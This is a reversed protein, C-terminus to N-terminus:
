CTPMATLATISPYKVRRRVSYSMDAIASMNHGKRQTIGIEQVSWDEGLNQLISQFKKTRLVGAFASVSDCGMFAHLGSHAKCADEGIANSIKELDIYRELHQLVDRTFHSQSQVFAACPFRM